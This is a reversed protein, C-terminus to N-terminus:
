TRATAYAPQMEAAQRAAPNAILRTVGAGALSAFADPAVANPLTVLAVDIARREILDDLRTEFPLGRYREGLSPRLTPDHHPPALARGREADPDYLAVIELEAPFAEITEVWGTVHFHSLGVVGVRM